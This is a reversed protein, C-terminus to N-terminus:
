FEETWPFLTRNRDMGRIRMVGEASLEFEFLDLNESLPEAGLGSLADFPAFQKARQSPPMKARITEAM